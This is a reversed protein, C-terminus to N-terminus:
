LSDYVKYFFSVPLERGCEYWAMAWLLRTIFNRQTFQLLVNHTLQAKDCVFATYAAVNNETSPAFRAIIAPVTHLNHKPGMYTRIIIFAARIGHELTDFQEFDPDSCPTVKGLWRNKSKRINLPNNNRLGRPTRTTTKAM